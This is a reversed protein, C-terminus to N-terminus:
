GRRTNRREGPVATAEEVVPEDWGDPEVSYLLGYRPDTSFLDPNALVVPDSAPWHSGKQVMGGIGTSMQVPRTGTAYVVQM